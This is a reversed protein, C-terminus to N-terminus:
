DKRYKARVKSAGAHSGGSSSRGDKDGGFVVSGRLSGYWVADALLVSPVSLVGAFAMVAILKKM